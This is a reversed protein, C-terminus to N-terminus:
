SNLAWTQRAPFRSSFRRGEPIGRRIINNSLMEDTPGKVDTFRVARAETVKDKKGKIDEEKGEIEFGVNDNVASRMSPMDVGGMGLNTRFNTKRMSAVSNVGSTLENLSLLMTICCTASCQPNKRWLMFNHILVALYRGLPYPILDLILSACFYYLLLHNFVPVFVARLSPRFFSNFSYLSNLCSLLFASPTVAVFSRIFSCCHLHVLKFSNLLHLFSNLSRFQHMQHLSSANINYQDSFANIFANIIRQHICQYHMLSANIICQHIANIICQHICQNICQHHMSLHVSSASIIFPLVSYVFNICKICHICQHHVSPANLICQYICHHICQQHMSSHNSPANCSARHM